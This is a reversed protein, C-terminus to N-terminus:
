RAYRLQLFARSGRAGVFIPLMLGAFSVDQSLMKLMVVPGQAAHFSARLLLPPADAM